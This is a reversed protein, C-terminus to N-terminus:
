VNFNLKEPYGTTYDYSDVEEITELANITKKHQITTLYCADAYLQIQALILKAQEIPLTILQDAIFLSVETLEIMEAAEISTRYNSREVPTIWASIGNVLFSNISNSSDYNELQFIKEQKAQELTRENLKMNFVEQISANPYAEHFEVQETTLLIWKGNYFDELTSGIQGAWYNSDIEEPFNIYYGRIDNKIYWKM